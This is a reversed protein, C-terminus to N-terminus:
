GLQEGATPFEALLQKQARPLILAAIKEQEWAERLTASLRECLHTTPTPIIIRAVKDKLLHQQGTAGTIERLIQRQGAATRLYCFLFEPAVSSDRLITVESVTILDNAEMVLSVKGISGMGISSILVDGIKLNVMGPLRTTKLFSRSGGPYIFPSTLDGSRVVNVNGEPAYDPPTRGNMIKCIGSDGGLPRGGAATIAEILALDRPDFYKADIRNAEEAAALDMSTWVAM